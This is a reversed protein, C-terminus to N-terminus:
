PIWAVPHGATGALATGLTVVRVAQSQVVIVAAPIFPPRQGPAAPVARLRDTAAQILASLTETGRVESSIASPVHVPPTNAPGFVWSSVTMCGALLAVHGLRNM